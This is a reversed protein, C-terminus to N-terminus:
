EETPFHRWRVYMCVDKPAGRLDGGSGRSPGPRLLRVPTPAPLLVRGGVGCRRACVRVCVGCTPHTLVHQRTPSCRVTGAVLPILCLRLRGARQRRRGAARAAHMRAECLSGEWWRARGSARELVRMGSAQGSGPRRSALSRFPVVHSSQTSPPRAPLAPLRVVVHLPVDPLWRQPHFGVPRNLQSAIPVLHEPVESRGPSTLTELLYCSRVAGVPALARSCLSTCYETHQLQGQFSSSTPHDPGVCVVCAHTGRKGAGQKQRWGATPAVPEKKKKRVAISPQLKGM